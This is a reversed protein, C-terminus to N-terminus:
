PGGQRTLNIVQIALAGIGPLGIFVTTFIGTWFKRTDTLERMLDNNAKLQREMEDFREILGKERTLPNGILLRKLTAIDSGNPPLTDAGPEPSM